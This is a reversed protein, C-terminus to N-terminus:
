PSRYGHVILGVKSQMSLPILQTTDFSRYMPATGITGEGRSPKVNFVDWILQLFCLM